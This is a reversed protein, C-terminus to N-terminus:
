LCSNYASVTEESTLKESSLSTRIVYIGDLAEERAINEEKRQYSLSDEGISVHFHKGVKFKNIVKGM